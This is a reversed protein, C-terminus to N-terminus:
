ISVVTLHEEVEINENESHESISKESCQCSMVVYGSM